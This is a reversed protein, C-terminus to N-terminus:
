NRRKSRRKARVDAVGSACGGEDLALVAYSLRCVLPVVDQPSHATGALNDFTGFSTLTHLIDIVEDWVDPPPRDYREALRGVITRLAERRREERARVAQEFDADIAALGLIRRIVIRDSHWFGGFAAILDTLAERPESRGFAARLRELLGRAALEDFLAELLGMKSGFQNYVTMRAVGAQSAVADITFGSFGDPAALLERAARVIRARTQAVTTLRQGLRYPRPNM